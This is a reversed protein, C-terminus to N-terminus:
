ETEADAPRLELWFTSGKDPESKLGVRGGMREVAKKVVALGIGTGEYSRSLRQFIEFIKEHADKEIGIGNDKFFLRIHDDRREAWVRVRPTVGPAVFKVANGLLNSICQTLAAENALVPPFSGELSIEASPSQLNPYSDVIGALLKAVDVRTLPLDTRVIRSYNLVDHILKDMRAAATTIRHIYNKGNAGIQDGCEQALISAFSQMARLPTRLDHAISFSFAELEGVMSRLSATREAVLRELEGARDALKEKAERLARETQKRETIDRMNFQIVQRDKEQYLNSVVELVRSAGVKRRGPLDDARFLGKESLERFAAECESRNEFMGIECLEKGVLEDRSYGLLETMYANADAIKHTDPDVILVGDHAAEFLRRYRMESLRVAELQKSETIDDIALLIQGPSDKESTDLRRANLLMTRCGMGAFDHTVEFDDFGTNRRPIEELLERLRPINWQGNGLESMLRGETEDPSMKFKKYFASNATSVRLNETLVLLPYRVSRLIAEAYDRATMSERLSRKIQDIDVLVLVAGDVKNDLTLYPRARLSYWRGEKDRVERERESATDIVERILQDLDNLELNHRVHNLPRGVDNHVLNFLKAALPTFRRIALDKTLLLIAVNVSAHLNNLDANSRNLEANRNAMEDNVTTLEENTSELEEKSTELEENISQLEENASTVEENSAQLEENAAEAQEQVSQLYDRAESLEQELEAVRRSAAEPRDGESGRSKAREHHTPVKKAGEVQSRSPARLGRTDSLGFFVLFCQAKLRMLPVVEFTIVRTGGNQVVRVGERRVAKNEEKAKKVAARLPLM